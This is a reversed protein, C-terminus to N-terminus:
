SSLSSTFFICVAIYICRVLYGCAIDGRTEFALVDYVVWRLHFERAVSLLSSLDSLSSINM